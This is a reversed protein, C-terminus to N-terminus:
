TCQSQAPEDAGWTVAEAVHETPRGMHAAIGDAIAIDARTPKIRTLAM